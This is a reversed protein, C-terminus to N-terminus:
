NRHDEMQATRSELEQRLADLAEPHDSWYGQDSMEGISRALRDWDHSAAALAAISVMRSPSGLTGGYLELLIGREAFVDPEESFRRMAERPESVRDLWGLGDDLLREAADEVAALLNSGDAVVLWVDPRDSWGGLSPRGKGMGFRSKTLVNPQAFGKTITKRLHCEYEKPRARDQTFAGLPSREVIASYFVGTNVRFSYTTAGIVDALYSNFSQVNVCQVAEGRDRWATRGTRRNFGVDKLTPWLAQRLARDVEKSDM